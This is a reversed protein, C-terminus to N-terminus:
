RSPCNVVKWRLDYCIFLESRSAQMNANRLQPNHMKMWRFLNKVPLAETPLRLTRYLERQKKFYSDATKFACAGHKEWEGQLLHPSPSEALYPEIVAYDLQPLDGQCFRPHDSVSRAHMKQPWLGHIVWGYKRQMGCQMKSSDPLSNGYKQIQSECFAPSWSLALMYYDVKAYANQGIADNSMITDYHSLPHSEKVVRNVPQILPEQTAKLQIVEQQNEKVSPQKDTNWESIALVIYIVVGGVLASFLASFLRKLYREMM